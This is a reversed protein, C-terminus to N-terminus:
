FSEQQVQQRALCVELKATIEPDGCIQAITRLPAAIEAMHDTTRASIECYVQHVKQVNEFAWVHLENRLNSLDQPSVQSVPAQTGPPILRTQVRIM